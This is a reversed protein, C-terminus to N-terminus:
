GYLTGGSDLFGPVGLPAPTLNSKGRLQPASVPGKAQYADVGTLITGLLGGAM